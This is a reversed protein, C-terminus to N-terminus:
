LAKDGLIEARIRGVGGGRRPPLQPPQNANGKRRREFALANECRWKMGGDIAAHMRRPGSRPWRLILDPTRAVRIMKRMRLHSGRSSRPSGRLICAGDMAAQIRRPGSRPWRLILDEM